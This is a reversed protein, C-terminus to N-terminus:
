KQPNQQSKLPLLECQCIGVGAVSNFTQAPLFAHSVEEGRKADKHKGAENEGREQRVSEVKLKEWHERVDDTRGSPHLSDRKRKEKSGLLRKWREGEPSADLGSYPSSIKTEDGCLSDPYALTSPLAKQSHPISHVWRPQPGKGSVCETTASPTFAATCTSGGRCHLIKPYSSGGSCYVLGDSSSFPSKLGPWAIDAKGKAPPLSSSGLLVFPMLCPPDLMACFLSIRNEVSLLTACSFWFAFHLGTMQQKPFPFFVFNFPSILNYTKHTFLFRM